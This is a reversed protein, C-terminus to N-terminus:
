RSTDRGRVGNRTTLIPAPLEGIIEAPPELDMGVPQASHGDMFATSFSKARGEAFYISISRAEGYPDGRQHFTRPELLLGKSIPFIVEDLRVPRRRTRDSTDGGDQWLSPDSVCALSMRFNSAFVFNAPLGSRSADRDPGFLEKYLPGSPCFLIPSEGTEGFFERCVMSYYATQTYYSLGLGANSFANDGDAQPNAFFPFVGAYDSTYSTIAQGCGRINALCQSARAAGRAGGVAVVLLSVLVSLIVFAVALEILSFGCRRVNRM